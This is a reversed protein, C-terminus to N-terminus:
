DYLPTRLLDTPAIGFAFHLRFLIECSIRPPFNGQEIKSLSKVSIQLVRAMAAKTLNNKERLFKINKCLISLKNKEMNEDGYVM